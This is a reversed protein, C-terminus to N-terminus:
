VRSHKLKNICEWCIACYDVGEREINKLINQDNPNNDDWPFDDVWLFDLENDGHEGCRDCTNWGIPSLVEDHLDINNKECEEGLEASSIKGHAIQDQLEEIREERTM